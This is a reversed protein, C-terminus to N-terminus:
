DKHIIRLGKLFASLVIAKIIGPIIFPILGVILAEKLGISIALWSIGCSFIITTGAMCNLFIKSFSDMNLKIKIVNMIYIAAAFGILYGGTPGFLYQFGAKYSSFVPVGMAGLTIYSAIIQMGAKKDYLLAILMIAVSQLSIQVPKLPIYLKACAFLLIVGMLIHALEKAIPNHLKALTKYM